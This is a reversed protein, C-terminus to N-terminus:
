LKGILLGAWSVIQLLVVSFQHSVDTLIDMEIIDGNDCDSVVGDDGFGSNRRAIKRTLVSIFWAHLQSQLLPEMLM